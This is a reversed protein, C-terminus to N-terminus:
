QDSTSDPPLITTLLLFVVSCPLPRARLLFSDSNRYKQTRTGSLSHSRLGVVCAYQACLKVNRKASINAFRSVTSLLRYCVLFNVDFALDLLYFLSSILFAFLFFSVFSSLSFSSYLVICYFLNVASRVFSFYLSRAYTHTFPRSRRETTENPAWDTHM